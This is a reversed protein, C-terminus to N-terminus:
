PRPALASATWSPTVPERPAPGDVEGNTLPEVLSTASRLLLSRALRRGSAVGALAEAAARDEALVGVVRCGLTSAVEDPGYPQRGVLLLQPEPGLECLVPLRAALAQLDEVRPRAVLVFRVAHAILPAAAPSAPLRGADVLVTVDDAAALLTALRDGATRWLPHAAEAAAPGVLASVRGDTGPLPQTHSWLRSPDPDHRVAAALTTAGPELRLGFRAALVGGDESAEVLLVRGPWVSALAVAATTVGPASRAAALVVRM